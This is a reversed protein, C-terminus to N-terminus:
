ILYESFFYKEQAKRCHKVAEFITKRQIQQASATYESM